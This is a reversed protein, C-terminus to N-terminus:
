GWFRSIGAVGRAGSERAHRLDDPGVGGLAYVAFPQGVAMSAFRAWGLPPAHAHSATAQVPSLTVLDAQWDRARKLQALDHCAMSRLGSWDPLPEQAQATLHLGDANVSRALDADDAVLVRCQAAHCQDIFASLLGKDMPRLRAYILSIGADLASQLRVSWDAPLVPPTILLQDPLSLATVVPQNAKPFRLGALAGPEFWDLPQQERGHPRGSLDTVDRFLLRVSLDPYDHDITMFPTSDHVTIGLEEHLERALADHASEGSEVKGGPFEWRGGQHKHAPRQSLLIRQRSESPPCERIVGAVVLLRKVEPVTNPTSASM